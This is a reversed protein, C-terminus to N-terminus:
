IELSKDIVAVNQKRIKNLSKYFNETIDKINKNALAKILGDFENGIIINWWYNKFKKEKFIHHNQLLYYDIKM